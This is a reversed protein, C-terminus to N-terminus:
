SERARVMLVPVSGGRLVKEAVSGVTFRSIGSRGHTSMAVLDANVEEEAKIIEDAANENVSVKCQVTAQTNQLGKSVEQLYSIAEDKMKTLEEENYPVSVAEWGGQFHLTHRTATIVHFLIIEVKEEPALKSILDHVYSLGAEGLKSGDLPLLIRESM